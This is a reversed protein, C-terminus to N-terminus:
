GRDTSSWQQDVSDGNPQTLRLRVPVYDMGPALWLEVKVDFEKRPARTLKFAAVPGGPLDLQEEGEVTFVWPEAERTGATQIMISTAPPFKAPAGAVLAALQLLVSLRDQAGPLLPADPRNSSFSLRGQERDFHTAEEGRGKDSFRQPALGGATIRGTSHQTRARVLPASFELRAEYNQGDQRWSLEGQGKLALGGRQLEVKYHLRVSGPIAVAVTSATEPTPVGAPAPAPAPVTAPAGTDVAQLAVPGAAGLKAATPAVPAASAVPPQTAAPLPAAVTRTLFPRAPTVASQVAERPPRLLLAHAALVAVTLVLLPRFPAM